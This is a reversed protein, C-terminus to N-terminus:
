REQPGLPNNSIKPPQDSTGNVLNTEGVSWDVNFIQNLNSQGSASYLSNVTTSVEGANGYSVRLTVSVEVVYWANKLWSPVESASNYYHIAIAQEAENSVEDNGKYQRRRVRQREVGDGSAGSGWDKQSSAAESNYYNGIKRIRNNNATYTKNTIALNASAQDLKYTENFAGYISISWDYAFTFAGGKQYLKLIDDEDAGEREVTQDPRTVDEGGEVPKVKPFGVHISREEVNNNPNRGAEDNVVLTWIPLPDKKNNIVQDWYNLDRSRGWSTGIAFKSGTTNLAKLIEAKEAEDAARQDAIAKAAAKFQRTLFTDQRAFGIYMASMSMTVRCMLPVMKTSFKLFDVNTGTIFGDLMFLSSFMVRVPNPMLLGWNGYNAALIEELSADDIPGLSRKSSNETGDDDETDTESGEESDATDTPQIGNERNFVRGASESFTKKQFELMEKSFGQGIVSYLIRLDALVGIDYPDTESNINMPDAAGGESGIVTAGDTLTSTGKSLEHSRDFMLDFTFNVAAGIPQALQDPDQLLPLYIDERMAVSQRIEQPNFQFNCRSIPVNGFQPQELNRIYGRHIQYNGGQLTDKGKNFKRQLEAQADLFRISKDPFLFPPNQKGERSPGADRADQSWNINFFGDERYGM